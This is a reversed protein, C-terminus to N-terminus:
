GATSSYSPPIARYGIHDRAHTRQPSPHVLRDGLQAGLKGTPELEHAQQFVRLAKALNEGDRADIAGPSFGARDLLVQAKLLVPGL